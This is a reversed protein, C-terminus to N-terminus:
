FQKNKIRSEKLEKIIRGSEWFSIEGILLDFNHDLYESKHISNYLKIPLWTFLAALLLSVFLKRKEHM